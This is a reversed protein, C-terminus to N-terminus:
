KSNSMINRSNVKALAAFMGFLAAIYHQYDLLAGRLFEVKLQDFLFIIFIIMGLASLNNGLADFKRGRRRDRCLLKWYTVAWIGYATFGLIGTTYLIYLYLSHPYYQIHGEPWSKPPSGFDAPRVVKPGHGIIPKDSIRDVVNRWGRRTDPTIGEFETNSFRDYLVNFDTYKLMVVSSVSLILLFGISFLAIGKKGLYMKYFYLFLLFALILSIFGGRNGTGVLISFNALLLLSGLKIYRRNHIVFHSIILSQIVLYEATIGVAAFPGVLRQDQRNEQLSLESLGFLAFQGYGVFVQIVSYTIVLMNSIILAKFFADLDKENRFYSVSMYFLVVNSGLQILNIMYKSSFMKPAFAWSMFYTLFLLAFPILLPVYLEQKKRSAFSHLLMAIGVVYTIVMNISGYKSDIPQFPIIVVIALFLWRAYGSYAFMFLLLAGSLAILLQLVHGSDDLFSM